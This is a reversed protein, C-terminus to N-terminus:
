RCEPCLRKRTAIDGYLEKYLENITMENTYKRQLIHPEKSKKKEGQTYMMPKIEHSEKEAPRPRPIYVIPKRVISKGTMASALHLATNVTRDVVDFKSALQNVMDTSIEDDLIHKDIVYDRIKYTKSNRKISGIRM